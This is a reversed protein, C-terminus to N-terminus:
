APVGSLIRVIDQEMDEIQDIAEVRMGPNHHELERRRLRLGELILKMQQNNMQPFTRKTTLGRDYAARDIGLFWGIIRTRARDQLLWLNENIDDTAMQIISKETM